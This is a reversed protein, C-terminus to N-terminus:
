PAFLSRLNWVMKEHRFLIEVLLQRTGQDGYEEACKKVGARLSRIATEHAAILDEIGPDDRKLDDWKFNTLFEQLRDVEIEGLMQIRETLMDVIQNLQELHSALLWRQEVYGAGRVNWHAIRTKIKLGTEIVLLGNLMEVIARREDGELGINPQLDVLLIKNTSEKSSQGM